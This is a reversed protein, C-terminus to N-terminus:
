KKVCEGETYEKVLPNACAECSNSFTYPIPPCPAKICQVQVEACVPKYLTICMVEDKKETKQPCSIPKPTQTTPTTTSTTVPTPKETPPVLIEPPKQEEKTETQTPVNSFWLIAICAMAIFVITGSFNKTKM